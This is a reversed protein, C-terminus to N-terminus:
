PVFTWQEYRSPFNTCRELELRSSAQGFKAKPVICLWPRAPNFRFDLPL